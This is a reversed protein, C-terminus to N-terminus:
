GDGGDTLGGNIVYDLEGKKYCLVDSMEIVRPHDEVNVQFRETPEKREITVSIIEGEDSRNELFRKFEEMSDITITRSM